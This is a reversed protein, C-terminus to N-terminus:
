LGPLNNYIRTLEFKFSSKESFNYKILKRTIISLGSKFILVGPLIKNKYKSAKRMMIQAINRKGRGGGGGPTM